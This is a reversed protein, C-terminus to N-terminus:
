RKAFYAFPWVMTAIFFFAIMGNYNNGFDSYGSALIYLGALSGGLAGFAGANAFQNMTERPVHSFVYTLCNVRKSVRTFYAVPWFICAVVLAITIGIQHHSGGAIYSAIFTFMVAFLMMLRSIKGKLDKKM